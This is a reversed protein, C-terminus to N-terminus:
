CAFISTIELTHDDQRFHVWLQRFSSGRLRVWCTGWECVWRGARGLALVCAISCCDIVSCHVLLMICSMARCALYSTCHMHTSPLSFIIMANVQCVLCAVPYTPLNLNFDIYLDDSISARNVFSSCFLFSAFRRKVADYCKLHMVFSHLLVGVYCCLLHFYHVLSARCIM